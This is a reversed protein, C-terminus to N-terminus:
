AHVTIEATFGQFALSAALQCFIKESTPPMFAPKALVDVSFLHPL